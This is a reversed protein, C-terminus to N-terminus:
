CGVKQIPLTRPDSAGYGVQQGRVKKKKCVPSVQALIREFLHKGPRTEGVERPVDREQYMHEVLTQARKWRSLVRLM